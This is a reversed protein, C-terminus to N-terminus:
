SDIQALIRENTAQQGKAIQREVGSKKELVGKIGEM